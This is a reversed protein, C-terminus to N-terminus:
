QLWITTVSDNANFVFVQAPQGALEAELVVLDHDVPELPTQQQAPRRLFYTLALALAAAAPLLWLMPKRRRQALRASLGPWIAPAEPVEDKSLEELGERARSLQKVRTRCRPCEQLHRHLESAAGADLEGWVLAVLRDDNVGCDTM